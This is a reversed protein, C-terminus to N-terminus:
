HLASSFHELLSSMLYRKADKALVNQASAMRGEFNSENGSQAKVHYLAPEGNQSRIVESWDGEGKTFANEDICRSKEALKLTVAQKELLWQDVLTGRKRLGEAQEVTETRVLHEHGQKLHSLMEKMPYVLRNEVIDGLDRGQVNIKKVLDKYVTRGIEEKADAFTKWRGKEDQFLTPNNLRVNEYAKKLKSDVLHTLVGASKAESFTMVEVDKAEELVHIRYFNKDDQTYGDLTKGQCLKALLETRNDLGPLAMPGALPVTLETKELAANELAQRIMEPREDVIALRSFDDIKGRVESSVSELMEFPKKEGKLESFHRKLLDFHKLEWEWTEALPVNLGVENKTVTALEVFFRKQVLEKAKMKSPTKFTTPLALPHMTEKKSAVQDIYEQLCMVDDFDSLSVPLTYLDVETAKGSFGFFQKLGAPDLLVSHGYDDFLRRFLLVQQWTKIAENENMGLMYFQSRIMEQAEDESVGQQRLKATANQLMDVRAEQKTVKYGKEKAVIASNYIVQSTLEVFRPGFWDSAQKCRFLSLDGRELEYDRPVWSYQSQMQMLFRRMLSPPFRMENLYLNALLAVSQKNFPATKFADFIQKQAPLVQEWMSEVSIFSAGPHRYPKFKQFKEFRAGLEEELEDWYAHMLQMGMGTELFDKEIVGDNFFNAGLMHSIRDISSRMMNSGDVAKGLAVDKIDKSKPTGATNIGFFCFSGIVFVSVVIFLYRQYKRIFNLM